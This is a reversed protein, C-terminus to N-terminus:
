EPIGPNERSCFIQEGERRSDRLRSIANGTGSIKGYIGTGPIPFPFKGIGAWRYIGSVLFWESSHMRVDELPADDNGM